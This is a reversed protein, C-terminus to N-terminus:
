HHTKPLEMQLLLKNFRHDKRLQMGTTYYITSSL